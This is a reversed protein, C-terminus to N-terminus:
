VQKASVLGGAGAGIAILDYIEHPPDHSQVYGFPHVENLLAANAEDLPWVHLKEKAVIAQQPDHAVWPATATTTTAMTSLTSSYIATITNITTATTTSPTSWDPFRFHHRHNHDFASGLVLSSVNPLLSCLLPSIFRV